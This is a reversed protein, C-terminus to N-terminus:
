VCDSYRDYSRNEGWLRVCVHILIKWDSRTVVTLSTRKTTQSLLVKIVTSQICGMRYEMKFLFEGSLNRVSIM